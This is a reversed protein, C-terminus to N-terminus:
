EDEERFGDFDVKKWANVSEEKGLFWMKNNNRFLKCTGSPNVYFTM